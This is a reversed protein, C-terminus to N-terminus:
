SQTYTQDIFDKAEDYVFDWDPHNLRERGSDFAKEFAERETPLLKKFDENIAHAYALMGREFESYSSYRNKTLNVINKNNIEIAQALPTKQKEM